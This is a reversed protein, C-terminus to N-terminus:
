RGSGGRGGAPHGQHLQLHPRHAFVPQGGGAGPVPGAGLGTWGVVVGDGGSLASRAESLGM